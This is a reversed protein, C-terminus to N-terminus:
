KKASPVQIEELTVMNEEHSVAYIRLGSVVLQAGAPFAVVWSDDETQGWYQLYATERPERKDDVLVVYGKGYPKVDTYQVHGSAPSDLLVKGTAANLEVFDLVSDVVAIENRDARFASQATLVDGAEYKWVDKGDPAVMFIIHGVTVVLRGGPLALPPIQPIPITYNADSKFVFKKPEQVTSADNAGSGTQSPLPPAEGPLWLGSRKLTEAKSGPQIETLTVTKEQYTVAYIHEGAVALQAGIPFPVSWHDDGTQGWYNLMDPTPTPQPERLNERYGSSDEVVLYGNSYPKVDTYVSRGNVIQHWRNKGTAADLEVFQVVAAIAIENRDARFALPATLAFIAEYKWLLKGDPAVMSVVNGVTVVLRGDPLTLPPIPLFPKTSGADSKFVLAKQGAPSSAALSGAQFATLQHSISIAILVGLLTRM